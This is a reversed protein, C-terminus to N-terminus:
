EKLVQHVLAIATSGEGVASAVRKMTAAASTAWRSCAPCARRWSTPRGRAAAVRAALLDERSLDPGTKIFGKDDLAVCGTSGARTRAGRGDDRVRARHRPTEVATTQNDRWRVRECAIAAKSAWSRPARACLEIAPSQEIRRILYRSMTEALGAGRVLMHVRRVTQALFVAAQGASNGGGVVIM